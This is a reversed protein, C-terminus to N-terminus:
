RVLSSPPPAVALTAPATWQPDAADEPSSGHPPTARRGDARDPLPPRAAGPERPGHLFADLMPYGYETLASEPHFQVGISPTSATRSRWSRATTARPPSASSPRCVRRARHRALPLADGPPAVSPWRLHRCRRAPHAVDQRAHAPRRARDPRRVGRRHVPPRPLRRPDADHTRIAPRRRDLDRSRRAYCPGPSLIIHSPALAAIEDLTVADHRRVVADEGLERVYRALNYVFSDYNDILLIM